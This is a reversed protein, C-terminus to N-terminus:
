RNSDTTSYAFFTYLDGKFVDIRRFIQKVRQRMKVIQMDPKTIVASVFRTMRWVHSIQRLNPIPQKTSMQVIVIPFAIAMPQWKVSRNIKFFYALFQLVAIILSIQSQLKTIVVVVSIFIRLFLKYLFRIKSNFSQTSHYLAFPSIIHFVFNHKFTNM